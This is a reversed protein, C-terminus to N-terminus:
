LAKEAKEIMVSGFDDNMVPNEIDRCMKFEEYPLINSIDTLGGSLYKREGFIRIGSRMDKCGKMTALLDKISM